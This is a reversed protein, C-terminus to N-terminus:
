HSTAPVPETYHEPLPDPRIQLYQEVDSTFSHDLTYGNYAIQIQLHRKVDQAHMFVKALIAAYQDLQLRSMSSVNPATLTRSREFQFEFATIETWDQTLNSFSDAYIDTLRYFLTYLQAEERPLLDILGNQRANDWVAGAPLRRDSHNPDGPYGLPPPPYVFAKKDGGDRSTDVRSRLELLWLMDRDLHALNQIGLDRNTLVEQHLDDELQLRQHRHHFFEVTQELGVAILLGIVITAIHVFFDRWTNAAHHAPHVELM